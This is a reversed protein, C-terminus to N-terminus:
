VSIFSLIMLVEVVEVVEVVEIREGSEKPIIDPSFDPDAGRKESLLEPQSSPSNRAQLVRNRVTAVVAIIIIVLVLSILLFTALVPLLGVAPSKAGAQEPMTALPKEGERTTFTHFIVPQSRVGAQVSYVKVLFDTSAPLHRLTLRPTSTSINRIVSMLQSNEIEFVFQLGPQLSTTGTGCDVTFSSFTQNYSNCQLVLSQQSLESTILCCSPHKREARSEVFERETNVSKIM